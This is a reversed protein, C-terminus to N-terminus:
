KVLSWQLQCLTLFRFQSLNCVQSQSLWYEQPCSWPRKAAEWQLFITRFLIIYLPGQFTVATHLANINAIFVLNSKLQM